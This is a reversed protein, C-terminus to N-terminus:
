LGRREREIRAKREILQYIQDALRNVDFALPKAQQPPVTDREIIKEKIERIIQPYARIVHESSAFEYMSKNRKEHASAQTEDAKSISHFPVAGVAQSHIRRPTDLFRAHTARVILKHPSLNLGSSIATPSTLENTSNSNLFPDMKTPAPPKIESQGTQVAPKMPLSAVMEQNHRLIKQSLRNAGESALTKSSFFGKFYANILFVNTKTPLATQTRELLSNTKNIIILPFAYVLNLTGLFASTKKGLNELTKKTPFAAHKNIIRKAFKESAVGIQPKINQM